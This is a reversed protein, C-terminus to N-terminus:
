PVGFVALRAKRIKSQVRALYVPPVSKKFRFYSLVKEWDGSSSLMGLWLDGPVDTFLVTPVKNGRDGWCIGYAAPKGNYFLAEKGKVRTRFMPIGRNDACMEMWSLVTSPRFPLVRKARTSKPERPRFFYYILENGEGWKGLM